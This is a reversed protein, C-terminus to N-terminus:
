LVLFMQSILIAERVPVLARNGFAKHYATGNRELWLVGGPCQNSAIANTIVADMEALKDAHFVEAFVPPAAFFLIVLLATVAVSARRKRRKLTGLSLPGPM